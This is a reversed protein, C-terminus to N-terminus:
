LRCGTRPVGDPGLDTLLSTSSSQLIIFPAVRFFRRLFFNRWLNPESATRTHLSHFLTFASVIFFLQVGRSGQNALDSLLGPLHGRFPVSVHFAIVALIAWGRLADVFQFHPPTM